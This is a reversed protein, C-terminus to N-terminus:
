PAKSLPKDLSVTSVTDSRKRKEWDLRMELLGETDPMNHEKRYDETAKEEDKSIFIDLLLQGTIAPPTTGTSHQSILHPLANYKWITQPVQSISSPYLPCHIPVNTCPSSKAFQAAAGYQMQDYHYPCTSTITFGSNKKEVLQTLCGDLGCFGCINEGIEKLKCENPTACDCLNCLIHGGVHKWMDKLAVNEQGCLFCPLKDKGALKQKPVLHDPLNEVVLSKNGNM